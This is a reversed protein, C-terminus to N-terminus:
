NDPVGDSGADTAGILPPTADWLSAGEGHHEYSQEKPGPCDSHVGHTRNGANKGIIEHDQGMPDMVAEGHLPSNIKGM